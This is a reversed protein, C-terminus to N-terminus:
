QRGEHEITAITQKTFGICALISDLDVDLTQIEGCQLEAVDYETDSLYLEALHRM